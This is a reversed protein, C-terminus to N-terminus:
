TTLRAAAARGSRIAGEMLGNFRGGIHEGAFALPGVPAALAQALGPEPSISYAAGVWPDADWAALVADAPDLALDPRLAALSDLWAGPGDAVGLRELADPSGSFCSVVPMTEEDPGTATWCWYREAVNMVAGVPPPERLPVFLKAAHGYRVRAFADRKDVPLPPEFEIRGLVGAPVAVVAADAVSAHGGATEVRVGGAGWEVLAVADGLRVVEGLRAALGLALGQNGWAVSPSPETDIHALGALDTAPIEDACRASSIEARALIAERAGPEIELSDLLERVSQRGDLAAVARDAAGVAEALETATTGIGGRPERDGYRMGKDWLGLGLEQALARVADNGALIFEAGMEIVAGNDLRRSWTRGGVRERAELVEVEAGGRVLADAAALGALGAGIVVVRLSL